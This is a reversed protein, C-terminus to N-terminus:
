AWLCGFGAECRFTQRPNTYPPRNAGENILIITISQLAQEQKEVDSFRLKASAVQIWRDEIKALETVQLKAKHWPLECSLFPLEAGAPIDLAAYSTIYGEACSQKLKLNDEEMPTPPSTQLVSADLAIM